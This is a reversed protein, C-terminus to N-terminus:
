KPKKKLGTIVMSLGLITVFAGGLYKAISDAQTLLLWIAVAMLLLGFIIKGINM